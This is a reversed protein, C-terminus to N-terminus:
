ITDPRRPGPKSMTAVLLSGMRLRRTLLRAFSGPLLRIIFQKL